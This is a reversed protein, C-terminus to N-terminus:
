PNVRDRCVSSCARVCARVCACGVACGNDTKPLYSTLNQAAACFCLCLNSLFVRVPFQRCAERYFRQKVIGMTDIKDIVRDAYDQKSATFIVVDYRPQPPPPPQIGRAIGVYGRRLQGRFSRSHAIALRVFVRPYVLLRGCRVVECCCVPLAALATQRQRLLEGAEHGVAGWVSLLVTELRLVVVCVRFPPCQCSRHTHTCQLTVQATDLGPAAHASAFRM